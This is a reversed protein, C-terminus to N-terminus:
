RRMPRSRPPSSARACATAPSPRRISARVSRWSEQHGQKPVKADARDGVRQGWAGGPWSGRGCGAGNGTGARKGARGAHRRWLRHLLPRPRRPPQHPTLSWPDTSSPSGAGSSCGAISRIRAIRWSPLVRNAIRSANRAAPKAILWSVTRCTSARLPQPPWHDSHATRLTSNRSSAHQNPLAAAWAIALSVCASRGKM